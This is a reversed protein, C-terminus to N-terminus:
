LSASTESDKRHATWPQLLVLLVLLHLVVHVRVQIILLPLPVEPVRRTREGGFRTQLSVAVQLLLPLRLLLLHEPRRGHKTKTESFGTVSHKM